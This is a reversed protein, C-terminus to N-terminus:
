IFNLVCKKMCKCLKELERVVKVVRELGLFDFSRWVLVLKGEFIEDKGGDDGGGLFNLILLLEEGLLLFKNVGFLWFM